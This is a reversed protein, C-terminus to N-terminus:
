YESNEFEVKLKNIHNQGIRAVRWFSNRENESLEFPRDCVFRLENCEKDLSIEGWMALVYSSEKNVFCSKDLFLNGYGEEGSRFTAKEKKEDWEYQDEKGYLENPIYKVIEFFSFPEIKLHSQVSKPVGESDLYFNKVEINGIRKKFPYFIQKM